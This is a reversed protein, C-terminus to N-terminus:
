HYFFHELKDQLAHNVKFELHASNSLSYFLNYLL